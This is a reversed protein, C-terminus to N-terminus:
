AEEAAALDSALDLNRRVVRWKVETENRGDQGSAPVGKYWCDAQYGVSQQHVMM